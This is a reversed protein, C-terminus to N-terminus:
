SGPIQGVHLPEPSPCCSPVRQAAQELEACRLSYPKIPDVFDFAFFTVYPAGSARMVGSVTDTYCTKSVPSGVILEGDLNSLAELGFLQQVRENPITKLSRSLVVGNKVIARVGDLKPSALLPYRLKDLDAKAALM